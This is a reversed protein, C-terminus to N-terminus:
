RGKHLGCFKDTASLDYSKVKTQKPHRHHPDVPEPTNSMASEKVVVRNLHLDQLILNYLLCGVSLM